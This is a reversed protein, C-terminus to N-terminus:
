RGDGVIALIFGDYGKIGVTQVATASLRRDTALKDNFRRVGQVSPDASSADLIAGDRVVNDAVILTGPKSLEVAQDLYETYSAKDADIFVFDFPERREARLAALADIARGLRLEVVDALGARVLNKQAVAAHKPNSELTVLHGGTQLARALWITSYGGLTGIELVARAGRLRALLFLLRGQLISVQHPPLGAAESDRLAADLVPDSSVLLSAYYRDVESWTTAGSM